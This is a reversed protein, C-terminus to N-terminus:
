KLKQQLLTIVELAERYLGDKAIEGTGKAYRAMECTDTIKFFRETLEQDVSRNQMATMASDKSLSSVPINLKDSLYGWLAGLLEEFFAADNGQKLLYESKKLRKRAYKDAKRIRLGVVDANQKIMRNHLVVFAAFALFAMVYLLYYWPSSALFRNIPHVDLSKTKIFRIDQNLVKVDEKNVGPVMSMLTDGQGKEVHVEYSQSRLTKYQRASPDFFSFEVPPLIFNGAVKPLILYEFTKSGSLPNDLHTNIVPDYREMDYPVELAIENILKLNGTGSIILKLTLPENTTTSTKNIYSNM